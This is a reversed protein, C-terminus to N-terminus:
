TVADVARQFRGSVQWRAKVLFNQFDGPLWSRVLLPFCRIFWHGLGVYRDAFAELVLYRALDPQDALLRERALYRYIDTYALSRYRHLPRPLTGKAFLWEAIKLNSELLRDVHEPAKTLSRSHVRYRYIYAPLCRVGNFNDLFLRVYFEYDEPGCLEENFHGVRKLTSRRIMLAPLMCTVTGTLIEKWTCRYGPPLRYDGDEGEILQIAPTVPNGAEDMYDAFGYVATLRRNNILVAAQKEISDPFYVDDADLFTILTGECLDLGINRVGAPSGVRAVQVYRIRRDRYSRIVEATDDSSDDDVIILEWNRYTQVLVSEIAEAIYDEANHAPMIISVKPLVPKSM